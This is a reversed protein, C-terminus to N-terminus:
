TGNGRYSSSVAGAGVGTLGNGPEAPDLHNCVHDSLQELIIQRKQTQDQRRASERHFMSKGYALLATLQNELKVISGNAEGLGQRERAISEELKGREQHLQAMAPDAALRVPRHRAYLNTMYMGLVASLFIEAIAQGSVTVVDIWKAGAFNLGRPTAGSASPADFVTLSAIQDNIGKSLSPYVSAYAGVWLLVGLIGVALCFWLYRDRIRKEPLTDWGVKIALAGVPLLAAWLYARIPNERFTIFGSELLNFSINSVGFAILCLIGLGCIIFMLKDWANWPPSPATDERGDVMVPVLGPRESLRLETEKLRGELFALREAHTRAKQRAQEWEVAHHHMFLARHYQEIEGAAAVAAGPNELQNQIFELHVPPTIGGETPKSEAANM